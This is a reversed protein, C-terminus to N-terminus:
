RPLLTRPRTLAAAIPPHTGRHTGCLVGCSDDEPCAWPQGTSNKPESLLGTARKALALAANTALDGHTKDAPQDVKVGTLALDAPLKGEAKLAELAAVIRGEVHTFVNM